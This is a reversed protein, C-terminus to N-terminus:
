EHGHTASAGIETPPANSLEAVSPCYDGWYIFVLDEMPANTDNQTQADASSVCSLLVVYHYFILIFLRFVRRSRRLTAM